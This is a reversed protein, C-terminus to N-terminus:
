AAAPLGYQNVKSWYQNWRDKTLVLSRLSLVMSAGKEVWKMGSCCLRQKILTKCAAETVGSGIPFSKERYSAYEMQHQHNRFYTISKKLTGEISESLHSSLMEELETLISQAAGHSHKLEHCRTALWQERQTRTGHVAHAAEALYTTVHYFDLIQTTTHRELYDWNIKAGDAIGVYSANPYLRKVHEIERDMRELFTAKGYEPTASLYITHQREGQPDYLSITGTMAERYGEKCLLMCTGDMGIAVTHITTDLAPTDYHWTEEKAQAVSAVAEVINQIYSRASSLGHNDALDQQVTTSANYAYKHSIMKAYRPTATMIIRANRELPCFTEGGCAQQYVHRCVETTGYPTHYTKPLRGKTTWKTGGMSLPSGDTDFRTLAEGTAVCGVENIAELISEESELMSGSLKIKVELTITDGDVQKLIAGM